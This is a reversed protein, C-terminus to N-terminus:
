DLRGPAQRRRGTLWFELPGPIMAPTTARYDRYRPGLEEILKAEELPLGLGYLYAAIGCLVAARNWAMETTCVLVALLV